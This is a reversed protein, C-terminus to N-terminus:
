ARKTWREILKEKNSDLMSVSCESTAPHLIKYWTITKDRSPEEHITLDDSGCFPCSRMVPLNSSINKAEKQAEYVAKAFRSIFNYNTDTTQKEYESQIIDRIETYEM